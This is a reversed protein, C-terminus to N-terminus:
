TAFRLYRSLLGPRTHWVQQMLSFPPSSKLLPDTARSGHGTVDSGIGEQRRRGRAAKM